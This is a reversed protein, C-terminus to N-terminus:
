RGSARPPPPPLMLLLAAARRRGGSRRRPHMACEDGAAAGAAAGSPLLLLLHLGCIHAGSGAGPPPMCSPAQRMLVPDGPEFGSLIRRRRCTTSQGCPKAEAAVDAASRLAADAASAAQISCPRLRETAAHLMLACRRARLLLICCALLLLCAADARLICGGLICTRGSATPIQAGSGQVRTKNCAGGSRPRAGIGEKGAKRSSRTVAHDHSRPRAVPEYGWRMGIAEQLAAGSASSIHM